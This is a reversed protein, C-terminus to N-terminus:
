NKKAKEYAFNRKARSDKDYDIMLGMRHLGVGPLRENQHKVMSKTADAISEFDVFCM